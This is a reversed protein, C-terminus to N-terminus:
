EESVANVIRDLLHIPVLRDTTWSSAGTPSDIDIPVGAREIRARGDKVLARIGRNLRRRRKTSSLDLWGPVDGNLINSQLGGAEFYSQVGHLSTGNSRANILVLIRHEVAADVKKLNVWTM